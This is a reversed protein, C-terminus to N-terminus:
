NCARTTSFLFCKLVLKVPLVYPEECYLILQQFGYARGFLFIKQVLLLLQEHRPKALFFPATLVFRLSQRYKEILQLPL